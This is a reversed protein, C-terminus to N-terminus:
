AAKEASLFLAGLGVMTKADEFGGSLLRRRAEALPLLVVEIDEGPEPHAPGPTLGVARFLHLRETCFGPATVFSGLPRLAAARYGTEEGLERRATEEPTEEPERTGAPIELVRRRVAHRYQRVLLIEQRATVAVVAVAGPHVVVDRTRPQAVGPMRVRAREVRFLRGSFVTSTDLTEFESRVM